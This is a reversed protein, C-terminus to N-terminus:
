FYLNREKEREGVRELFALLKLLVKKVGNHKYDIQLNMTYKRKRECELSEVM